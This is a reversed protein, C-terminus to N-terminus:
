VRHSTRCVAFLAAGFLAAVLLYEVISTQSQVVAGGKREEEQALVTTVSFLASGTFAALATFIRSTLRKRTNM